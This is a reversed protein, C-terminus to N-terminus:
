GRTASTGKSESRLFMIVTWSTNSGWAGVVARGEVFVRPVPFSSSVADLARGVHDQVQARM